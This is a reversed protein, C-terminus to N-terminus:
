EDCARAVPSPGPYLSLVVLAAYFRVFDRFPRFSSQTWAKMRRRYAGESSSRECLFSLFAFLLTMARIALGPLWPMSQIQRVVFQSVEEPTFEPNDDGYVPISARVLLSIRSELYGTM